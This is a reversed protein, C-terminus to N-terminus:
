YEAANEGRITQTANSAEAMAEQTAEQEKMYQASMTEREHSELLNKGQPTLQKGWESEKFVAHKELHDGHDQQPLVYAGVEKLFGANEEEPTLDPPPQPEPPKQLIVDKNRTELAELLQVTAEYLGEPNNAILPNEVAVAYMEKAKALKEARSTIIPDSVPIVDVSNAYDDIPDYGGEQIAQMLDKYEDSMSDQIGVYEDRDLYVGNWFAIHRLEIGLSRHIRSYISSFTAMGQEVVALMSTATTDSPPLQGMMANSVTSAEKSYTRLEQLLNFLTQSPPSFELPFIAKRIDDGVIHVSKYEGLRFSLDGKKIGSKANVLGGKMNNLTGADLEQNIVTNEAENLHEMLNGFGISYFSQPNPIFHYDTFYDIKQGEKTSNSIIRLVRGTEEDVTIVYPEKIRDGDFALDTHQELILRPQETETTKTTGEIKDVQSKIESGPDNANFASGEELDDINHYIGAWGRKKIDNLYLYFAHTIRPTRDLGKCRYPLVLEEAPVLQSVVRNKVTDFYTKKFSTGVVPLQCLMKDTDPLFETMQYRTQWNMYNGVRKAAYYAAGDLAHGKVLGKAPLLAPLARAAFQIAAIAIEPVHVNASNEWPESKPDRQGAFLKLWNERRTEWESRSLVDARYDTVVKGGIEELKKKSLKVARNTTDIEIKPM